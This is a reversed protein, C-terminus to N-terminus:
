YTSPIQYNTVRNINMNGLHKNLDQLTKNLNNLVDKGQTSLLGDQAANTFMTLQQLVAAIDSDLQQVAKKEELSASNEFVANYGDKGKTSFAALHAYNNEKISKLLADAVTNRYGEDVNADMFKLIAEKSINKGMTQLQYRENSDIGVSSLLQQIDNIALVKSDHQADKSKQKILNLEKTKDGRVSKALTVLGRRDSVGELIKSYNKYKDSGLVGISNDNLLRDGRMAEILNIYNNLEGSTILNGINGASIGISNLLDEGYTNVLKRYIDSYVNQLGAVANNSREIRIDGAATNLQIQKKRNNVLTNSLVAYIESDTLVGLSSVGKNVSMLTSNLGKTQISTHISERIAESVTKKGDKLDEYNVSVNGMLISALKEDSIDDRVKMAKRIKSLASRFSNDLKDADTYLSYVNDLADANQLATRIEGSSDGSLGFWASDGDEALKAYRSYSDINIIDNTSINNFMYDEAGGLAGAAINEEMDSRINDRAAYGGITKDYAANATKRGKTILDKFFAPRNYDVFDRSLQRRTTTLNTITTKFAEPSVSAMYAAIEEPTYGEKALIAEFSMGGIKAQSLRFRNLLAEVAHSGGHESLKDLFHISAADLRAKGGVVDGGLYNHLINMGRSVLSDVSENSNLLANLKNPDFKTPDGDKSLLAMLLHKNTPNSLQQLNKTLITQAAGSVGGMASVQMPTLIGTRKAAELRGALNLNMSSGHIGAFGLNNAILAGQQGYMNIADTHSIGLMRAYTSELAAIGGIQANSAGMAQMRKMQRGIDEMDLTEFLTMMTKFNKKVTKLTRIYQDANNSFDFMGADMGIRLMNDYDEKDFFPDGASMRRLSTGIRYSAQMNFGQGLGYAVDTGYTIRSLSARQIERAHRIRDLYPATVAGAVAGVGLGLMAGGLGGMVMGAGVSIGTEGLGLAIASQADYVTRNALVNRRLPNVAPNYTNIVGFGRNAILFNYLLSPNMEQGTVYNASPVTRFAGYQAPTMFQSNPLYGMQGHTLHNTLLPDYTNFVQNSTNSDIPTIFM